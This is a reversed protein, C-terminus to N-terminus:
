MRCAAAYADGHDQLVKGVTRNTIRGSADKAVVRTYFDQVPFQNNNFRFTGRVSAFRAAKLARRLEDKNDVDGKVDRIAADILLAADYAQAAYMTPLRGYSQQFDAVFRKNQPNDLDHGWQASNFMGVMPEGVAKIVDEDASAGPGFLAIDRALGSAVFQKVFNIGMGGPMFVYVADARAARLQALEASFDLQGLRPYIEQVIAGGKYLRKFGTTADKGAPYNPALLAVRKHGKDAVIKGAAEHLTDNQWSVSFFFPNCQEGALQSPGANPSVLFTKAEFVTPAIALLVNSFALGTMLDVKERRILRDTSQKAAEPNQQDDTVIVEAPVDGLRGSRQKIALMFGDRIDVGLPAGPGSLTTLLGIKVKEAPAAQAPLVLALAASACCLLQKYM